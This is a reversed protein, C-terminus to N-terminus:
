VMLLRSPLGELASGWDKNASRLLQLGDGSRVITQDTQTYGDHVLLSYDPVIGSRLVDRSLSVYLHFAESTNDPVIDSNM